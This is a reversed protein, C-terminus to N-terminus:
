RKAITEDLNLIVNGVLTWAALDPLAMGKPAPGIPKTAIQVAGAPDAAYKKQAAEALSVLRATERETPPRTLALRFAFTVREKPTPGAEALTRRALAQAAEIYVPDNLTVLAQLPTNTRTRRVTCTTREPADFTTLSPYPANRRWKTYLGRRFRDEGVSTTWDTSSGFAASLGFGPQPPQVSPGGMKRSLLGAVYLAQDRVGEASLRVRPGRALLRNNPDREVLAPTVASTQRYASSTVFLRLMAKTDWGSRVYETALWDLLEPHSPLEGQTGFEESTEVIGIGFLEEWLRNVAVRATLPNDDGVLWNALALRDLKGAVPRSVLATPLGPQVAEGKNDYEGRVHVFTPRPKAERLIPSTITLSKLQGELTKIEADIERRRPSLTRHHAVLRQRQQPTRKAEPVPVIDTVEKPLKSRDLGAEWAIVAADLQRTLRDLEKRAIALTATTEAQRAEAGPRTFSLTPRDDGGNADETNNFIAYVQYYEKQTFPDYKHTHCQACAMTSGQWVQFTTNVRDVIAASRFEEVNTGGETNTLTNRHFGTAILQDPTPNPLLDGALQEVTFRDYPKNANLSSIVWDRFPWISRDPDNAFGQSDAYRSLDLWSVAWREGFAPSALLRDVLREYADPRADALFRDAEELTPPLGTLDLAVRRLIAAKDAPASPRLKEKESRALLFRDIPNRAWAADTVIPVPPRVPKTWSWHLTYPAGQAVWRTLIEKDRASLPKNIKKPPMLQSDDATLRAVLESKDPHGSVIAANGSKLMKLAADREDLRLGAKRAKDDPGHCQFCRDVLIPRVERTFDVKGTAPAPGPPAAASLPLAALLIPLLTRTM